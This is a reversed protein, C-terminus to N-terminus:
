RLFTMEMGGACAPWLVLGGAGATPTTSESSVGTSNDHLVASYALASETDGQIVDGGQANIFGSFDGPNEETFGGNWSAVSYLWM